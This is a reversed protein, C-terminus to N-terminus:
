YVLVALFLSATARQLGASHDASFHGCHRCHHSRTALARVGESLGAAVDAGLSPVSVM